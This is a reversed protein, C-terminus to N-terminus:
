CVTYSPIRLLMRLYKKLSSGVCLGSLVHVIADKIKYSCRHWLVRAASTPLNPSWNITSAISKSITSSISTTSTCKWSIDCMTSNALFQSHACLISNALQQLRRRLTPPSLSTFRFVPLSSSHPRSTYRSVLFNCILVYKCSSCRASLYM